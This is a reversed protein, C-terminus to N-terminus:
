EKDEAIKQEPVFSTQNAAPIAANIVAIAASSFDEHTIAAHVVAVAMRSFNCSPIAPNVIAVAASSFDELTM